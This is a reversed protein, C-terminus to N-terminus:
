KRKDLYIWACITPGTSNSDCHCNGILFYSELGKQYLGFDNLALSEGLGSMTVDAMLPKKTILPGTPGHLSIV